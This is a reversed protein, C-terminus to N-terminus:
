YVSQSQSTGRLSDILTHDITPDDNNWGLNPACETHLSDCSKDWQTNMTCEYVVDSYTKVLKSLSQRWWYLKYSWCM